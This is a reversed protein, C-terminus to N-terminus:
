KKKVIKVDLNLFCLRANFETDVEDYWVTFNKALMVPIGWFYKGNEKMCKDISPVNEVPTILLGNMNMEKDDGQISLNAQLNANGAHSSLISLAICCVTINDILPSASTSTREKM